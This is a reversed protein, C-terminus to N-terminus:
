CPLLWAMPEMVPTFVIHRAQKRKGQTKAARPTLISPQARAQLSGSAAGHNFLSKEEKGESAARINAPTWPLRCGCVLDPALDEQPLSPTLEVLPSPLPMATVPLPEVFPHQLSSASSCCQWAATFPPSCFAGSQQKQQWPSAARPLHQHHQPHKERHRECAPGDSSTVRRLANSCFSSLGRAPKFAGTARQWTRRLSHTHSPVQGQAPYWRAARRSCCVQSLHLAPVQLM